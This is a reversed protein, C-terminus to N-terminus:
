NDGSGASENAIIQLSSLAYMQLGAPETSIVFAFGKYTATHVYATM